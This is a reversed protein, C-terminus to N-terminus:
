PLRAISARLTDLNDPHRGYRAQLYAAVVDDLAAALEPREDHVRRAITLPAEWPACNVQRQSLHRLVKHWLRLAPDHRPRQYLTWATVTLLVISVASFLMIALTKWSEPLGMDRLFERQRQVDYGLVKQNWANNLAEWRFRLQRLWATRGQLLGPLAEGDPLAGTIGNEIRSPAVVATPDVRIWGREALWVEAWAHADSQRVVLYGDLPNREGGQYGGVVRAPIGASRMLVVFASAYHECFGRQTSFLFEDISDRSLLVPPQLTYAFDSRAFLHLAEDVIAQPTKGANRWGEALQRAQPNRGAPLALNRRLVADEERVNFRYDLSSSFRLRQREGIVERSNVTMQGNMGAEVPLKQPADLTLLWRRGHAELTIEYDVPPSLAEIRPPIANASTHWASGDFEEHVPGRWYLKDSAPPAADFRVRFAIEGNQVLEAISGPSMQESLGTKGAHADQPLGWLPATVRPFLVYLVIMFPLAQACLQASYRMIHSREALPGGHIRILSATIFWLSFLLWLGTPIDQSYFYHTLLLFYGLTVVVIADRRSRLELLKMSMFMVLLAVGADRGFLTDFEYLVGACGGAVLLAIFIRSPLRRDHKWLWAARLLMIAAFASLWYPQYLFHPVTTLAAIGFLWPMAAHDLALDARTSM